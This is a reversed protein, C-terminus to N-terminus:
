KDTGIREKKSVKQESSFKEKFLIFLCPLIHSECIFYVFIGISM